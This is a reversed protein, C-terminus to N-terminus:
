YSILNSKFLRIKKQIILFDYKINYLNSYVLFGPNKAQNLISLYYIIKIKKIFIIIDEKLSIISQYANIMIANQAFLIHHLPYLYDMGNM